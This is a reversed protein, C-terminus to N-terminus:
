SKVMLSGDRYGNVELGVTTLMLEVVMLQSGTVMLWENAVMVVTM